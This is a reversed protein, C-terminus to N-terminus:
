TATRSPQAGPKGARPMTGGDTFGKLAAAEKDAMWVVNGHSLQDIVYQMSENRGFM